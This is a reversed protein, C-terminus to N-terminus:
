NKNEVVRRVSTIGDGSEHVLFRVNKKILVYKKEENEFEGIIPSKKNSKM